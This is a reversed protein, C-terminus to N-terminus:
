QLEARGITKGSTYGGATKIYFRKSLDLGSTEVRYDKRGVSWYIAIIKRAYGPKLVTSSGSKPKLIKSKVRGWKGIRTKYEIGVNIEKGTENFVKVKRITASISTAIGLFLFILLIGIGSKKM